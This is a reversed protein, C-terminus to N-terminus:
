RSTFFLRVDTASQRTTVMDLKTAEIKKYNSNGRSELNPNYVDTELPRYGDEGALGFLTGPKYGYDNMIYFYTFFGAAAQM